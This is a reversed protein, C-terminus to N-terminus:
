RKYEKKKLLELNNEGFVMKLVQDKKEASLEITLQAKIDSNIDKPLENPYYFIELLTKGVNKAFLELTELDTKSRGSEFRAYASQSIEMLDAMMEQSYNKSERINKVTELVQNRETKM